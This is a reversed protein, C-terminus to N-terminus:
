RNVSMTITVIQQGTDFLALVTSRSCEKSVQSAKALTSYCQALQPTRVWPQQGLGEELAEDVEALYEESEGRYVAYGLFNTGEPFGLTKRLEEVSPKEAGSKKVLDKKKKVGSLKMKGM